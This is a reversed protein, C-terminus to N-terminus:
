LLEEILKLQRKFNKRMRQLDVVSYSLYPNVTDEVEPLPTVVTRGKMTLQYDFELMGTHVRRAMGADTAAIMDQLQESTLRRKAIRYDPLESLMRLTDYM